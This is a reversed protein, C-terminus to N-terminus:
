FITLVHVMVLVSLNSNSHNYNKGFAHLSLCQIHVSVSIIGYLPNNEHICVKTFHELGGDAIIKTIRINMCM